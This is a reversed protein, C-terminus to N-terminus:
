QGGFDQLREARLSGYALGLFTFHLNGFFSAYVMINDTIMMLM